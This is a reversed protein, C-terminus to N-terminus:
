ICEGNSEEVQATRVLLSAAGGALVGGPGTLLAGFFGVVADAVIIQSAADCGKNSLNNNILYKKPATKTWLEESSYYFSEFIAMQELANRNKSTTKFKLFEKSSVSNTYYAETIFKIMETEAGSNVALKKIKEFFLDDYKFDAINQDVDFILNIATYDVNSFETPHLQKMETEMAEILGGITKFSNEGTNSSIISLISENHYRGYDTTKLQIQNSLVEQETQSTSCSIIITFAISLLIRNKIKM